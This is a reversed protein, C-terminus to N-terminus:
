SPGLASLLFVEPLTMRIVKRSHSGSSSALRLVCLSQKAEQRRAGARDPPGPHLALREQGEGM